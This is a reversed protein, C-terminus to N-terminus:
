GEDPWLGMFTVMPNRAMQFPDVLTIQGEFGAEARVLL